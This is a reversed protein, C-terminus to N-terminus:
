RRGGVRPQDVVSRRPPAAPREGAASGRERQMKDRAREADSGALADAADPEQEESASTSAPDTRGTSECGLTACVAWSVVAGGLLLTIRRASLALM